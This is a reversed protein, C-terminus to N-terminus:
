CMSARARPSGDHGELFGLGRWGNTASQDEAISPSYRGGVGGPALARLERLLKASM